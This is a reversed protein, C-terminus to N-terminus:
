VYFNFSSPKSWVHLLFLRKWRPVEPPVRETPGAERPVLHDRLLSVCVYVCRQPEEHRLHGPVVLMMMSIQGKLLTESVLPGTTQGKNLVM